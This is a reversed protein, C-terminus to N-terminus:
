KFDVIDLINKLKGREPLLLCGRGGLFDYEFIRM